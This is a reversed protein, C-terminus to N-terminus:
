MHSVKQRIYEKHFGLFEAHLRLLDSRSDHISSTLLKDIIFLPVRDVLSQVRGLQDVLEVLM